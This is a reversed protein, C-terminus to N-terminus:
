CLKGSDIKFEISGENLKKDKEVTYIIQSFKNLFPELLKLSELNKAIFNFFVQIRSPFSESNSLIVESVIKSCTESNGLHLYKEITENGIQTNVECVRMIFKNIDEAYQENKIITSLNILSDKFIKM